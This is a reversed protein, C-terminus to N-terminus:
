FGIRSILHLRPRDKERDRDGIAWGWDIQLVSEVTPRLRLGCGVGSLRMDADENARPDRLFGEAFDWFAVALLSRRLRDLLSTGGSAMSGPLFRDVPARLEVTAQFGQDALFEGEPYGRVTDFGGLRFQEAPVLRDTALQGSGRFVWSTGWPGSQVRVFNVLWRVFSGGTKARSTAPDEPHSGGFLSGIGLRLQQSLFSRGTSDQRLLNTGGFLVRLDDKSTTSNDSRTRVRKVDFGSLAELEFRSRRIWPFIFGSSVTVADGRALLNKSDGGLSSKVGSVDLTASIGSPTLPRLYSLTGGFLGAFETVLGRVVMQDDRGTLNGHSLLVSQRIQGTTKTGLTDIGYSAHVPRQDTVQFVLDTREPQVGRTLVLKVKRDPHANLRRLSEELRPLWLIENSKLRIERALLASSFYRNGNVQIQGVKGEIMRIRILGERVEQAPVIARSTVYGKSRYWDTIEEATKQLEALTVTRDVIPQVLEKLVKDPLLTAGEVAVRTVHFEPAPFTPVPVPEEPPLEVLPPERAPLELERPRRLREEESGVETDRPTAAGVPRALGLVLFVVLPTPAVRCRKAQRGQLSCSPLCPADGNVPVVTGCPNGGM